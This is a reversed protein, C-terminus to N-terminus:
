RYRFRMQETDFRIDDREFFRAIAGDSALRDPRGETIGGSALLWLHDTFSIALEVDHTSLLIAKGEEEALRHLLRFMSVKAGFDLFATPEDLLIVPTDQALAKAIFVRQRQGDSLTHLPRCRFDVTETLEMAHCVAERDRETAVSFLSSHPIRGMEVVEGATLGEAEPRYTLVISLTRALESPSYDALPRAALRIAEPVASLAPQLRAITRLLTSKGCGNPGLLATMSAAPLHASLQRGIVTSAYGTQLRSLRLM